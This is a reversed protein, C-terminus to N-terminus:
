ETGVLRAHGERGLRGPGGQWRSDM